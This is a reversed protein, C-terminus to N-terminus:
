RMCVIIFGAHAHKERLKTLLERDRWTALYAAIYGSRYAHAQEDSHTDGLEIDRRLDYAVDQEARRRVADDSYREPAHGYRLCQELVDTASWRAIDALRSADGAFEAVTPDLESM